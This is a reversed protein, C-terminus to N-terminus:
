SMGASRWRRSAESTPERSISGGRTSHTIGAESPGSLNGAHAFREAEELEEDQHRQLQLRFGLAPVDVEGQELTAATRDM